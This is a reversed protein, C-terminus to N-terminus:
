SNRQRPNQRAMEQELSALGSMAEKAKHVVASELEALTNAIYAEVERRSQAADQQSATTIDKAQTLALQVEPSTDVLEALRARAEELARETNARAEAIIADAKKRAADLREDVGDRIQEAQQIEQPLDKRLREILVLYDDVRVSMARGLWQKPEDVTDELAVLTHLFEEPIGPQPNTSDQENM